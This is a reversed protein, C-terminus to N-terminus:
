ARLRSAPLPLGSSTNSDSKQANIGHSQARSALAPSTGVCYSIASAIRGSTQASPPTICRLTTGACHLAATILAAWNIQRRAIGSRYAAFASQCAGTYQISRRAAATDRRRDAAHAGFRVGRQSYLGRRMRRRDRRARDCRADKRCNGSGCVPVKRKRGAQRGRRGQRQPNQGM